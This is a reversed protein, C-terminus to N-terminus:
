QSPVREFVESVQKLLGRIKLHQPCVAECQGCAICDSAKGNGNTNVEYYFDSNWDEYQKKANLCAFLDPIQIQRPCGAVCYRCNTCPITDQRKLISCM